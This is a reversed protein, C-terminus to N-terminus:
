IRDIDLEATVGIILCDTGKGESILKEVVINEAEQKNHALVTKRYFNGKWKYFVIWNQYNNNRESSESM